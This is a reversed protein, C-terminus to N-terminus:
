LIIRKLVSYLLNNTYLSALSAYVSKLTYEGIRNKVEFNISNQGYIQFTYFFTYLFLLYLIGALKLHGRALIRSLGYTVVIGVLMPALRLLDFDIFANVILAIPVLIALVLSVLGSLFLRKM